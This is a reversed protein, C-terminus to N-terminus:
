WECATPTLLKRSVKEELTMQKVLAVAKGYSESWSGTGTMDAIEDNADRGTACNDVSERSPYVPPSQGYFHTDNTIVDQAAVGVVGSGSGGGRPLAALGALGGAIIILLGM